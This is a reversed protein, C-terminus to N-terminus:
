TRVGGGWILFVYSLFILGADTENQSPFTWKKSFFCGGWKLEQRRAQVRASPPLSVSLFVYSLQTITLGIAPNTPPVSRAARRPGPRRRRGAPVRRGVSVALRASRRRRGAVAAVGVAPARRRRGQAPSRRRRCPAVDLEVRAAQRGCSAAVDVFQQVRVCLLTRWHRAPKM